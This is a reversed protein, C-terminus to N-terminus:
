GATRAVPEAFFVVTKGMAVFIYQAATIHGADWWTIPPQGFAKWLATTCAPPIVEDQKANFMLIKRGRVNSGYTVPDVTKMLEMLSDRTGGGAVWKQRVPAMKPTEWAVLGIDGGALILCVRELRPEATASLAATIGGLSIGMIGLRSPDVDPRSALWATARRVDLVAQTMGRVTEHPDSSVMRAASHPEQRPGYYPMKLFLADCGQHALARCFLRSLEFDGGLIHLVVVGPHKGAARPCFFECHVTNNSAEPTVVPSPFTVLSLKIERSTTEVATEAFAFRHEDLHFQKPVTKELRTPRFTVQGTRHLPEEGRCLIPETSLALTLVIARAYTVRIRRKRNTRTEIAQAVIARTEIARAEQEHGAQKVHVYDALRGCTRAAKPAAVQRTLEAIRGAYSIHAHRHAVRKQNM